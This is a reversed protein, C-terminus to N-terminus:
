LIAIHNKLVLFYNGQSYYAKASYAYSSTCKECIGHVSVSFTSMPNTNTISHQGPSVKRNAYCITDDVTNNQHWEVVAGDLSFGDNIASCEAIVTIFHTHKYYPHLDALQFVPFTVNNGYLTVPPVILMALGGRPANASKVYQVVMVPQDSTFSIAKNGTVNAEYFLEEPMIEIVEGNSMTLNTSINLTQVRFGANISQLPVICFKDGWMNTPPIHVLLGDGFGHLSSLVKSQVGSIVAIPKDSQVLTGSLDEHQNGDFRYSEYQWLTQRIQERNTQIYVSTKEHLATICVFARDYWFSPQYSAVFHTTGLHNTPIVVFGDGGYDNSIAHVNVIDSSRVIVTTNQKGVDQLTRIVHGGTNKPSLDIDWLSSNKSVTKYIELGIGPISLSVNVPKHSSSTILVHPDGIGHYFKPVTFVHEQVWQTYEDKSQAKSSGTPPECM